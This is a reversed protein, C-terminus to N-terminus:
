PPRVPPAPGAPFHPHPHRNPATGPPPGSTASLITSSTVTTHQLSANTFVNALFWVLCFQVSLAM